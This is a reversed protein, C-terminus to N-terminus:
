SMPSLNDIEFYRITEDVDSQAILGGGTMTLSSPVRAYQSDHGKQLFVDIFQFSDM